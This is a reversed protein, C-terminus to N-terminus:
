RSYFEIILKPEFAQKLEEGAPLSTVKATLAGADVSLWSPTETRKTLTETIDKWLGKKQKNERLTIVDGIRVRYSPINVTTGNVQFHAHGVAQRAQARTKAFGARYVANDLRTELLQVLVEGTNGHRKTAETFLKRFPREMLGYMRKAKQKERLQKGFDTIRSRSTPGHVGPAYPRRALARAHSARDSIPMGERRSMKATSKIRM